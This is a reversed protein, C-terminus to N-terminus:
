QLSNIDQVLRNLRIGEITKGPSEKLFAQRCGSIAGCSGGLEEFERDDEVCDLGEECSDGTVQVQSEVCGLAGGGGRDEGCPAYDEREKEYGNCL